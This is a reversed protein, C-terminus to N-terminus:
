DDSIIIKQRFTEMRVGDDIGTILEAEGSSFQDPVSLDLFRMQGSIASPNEQLTMRCNGQQLFSCTRFAAAKPDVTRNRIPGMADAPEGDSLNAVIANDSVGDKQVENGTFPLSKRLISETFLWQQDYGSGPDLIQVALRYHRNRALHWSEAASGTPFVPGENGIRNEPGVEEAKGDEMIEMLQLCVFPRYVTRPLKVESLREEYRYPHDADPMTPFPYLSDPPTGPAPAQLLVKRVHVSGDTDLDKVGDTHFPEEPIYEFGTRRRFPSSVLVLDGAQSSRSDRSRGSCSNSNMSAQKTNEQMGEEALIGRVSVKEADDLVIAAREDAADTRIHIRSLELQEVHRAYIGFAPLIGWNSSEPYVEPMEPVNWPDDEWQESDPNWRIRPLLAENQCFFGNVQWPLIQYRLDSQFARFRWVTNLQRQEVAMKQTLGGRFEATIDHISVRRIRSDELGHILIPYRPDCNRITVNRIEINWASAMEKRGVANAYRVLDERRIERSHDTQYCKEKEDWSLAYYRGNEERYNAPNIRCPDAPDVVSFSFEDPSVAAESSEDLSIRRTRSYSPTYRAAPISQFAESSDQPLIWQPNDLRVDLDGPKRIRTDNSVGTVGFRGRDGVRIFIPASSIDEMLCDEMLIDHMPSGDVAELCFGRSRIFHVKRILVTDYGCSSETGLKVRGTPGCRDPAILRNGTPTGAYVSGPDFGCVTCDEIYVNSCPYYDGAGYDSKLCLADDNLSNFTSNLVTVNRCGDIDFADRDTDALIHDAYLDQVASAIIAFHGGHIISFDKLVVNRCRRLAIGKNGTWWGRDGHGLRDGGEPQDDTQLVNEYTGTEEHYISGDLLGPGEIAVNELDEGFILANRLYTHGTDQIGAYFNIEPEAYNASAPDSAASNIAAPGAFPYTGAADAPKAAQLVAGAELLLTVNSRLLITYVPFRGRPVVVTGGREGNQGAHESAKRIASNVAATNDEASCSEGAGEETIVIRFNEQERLDAPRLATGTAFQFDPFVSRNERM